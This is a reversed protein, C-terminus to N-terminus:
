SGIKKEYVLLFDAKTTKAQGSSTRLSTSPGTRLWLRGQRDRACDLPTRDFPM